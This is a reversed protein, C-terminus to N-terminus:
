AHVDIRSLGSFVAFIGLVPRYPKFCRGPWDIFFGYHFEPEARLVLDMRPKLHVRSLCLVQDARFGKRLGTWPTSVIIEM